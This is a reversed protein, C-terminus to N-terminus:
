FYEEMNELMDKATRIANRSEPILEPLVDEPSNVVANLLSEFLEEDGSYVAYYEAYLVRTDLYNPGM